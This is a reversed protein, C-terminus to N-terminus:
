GPMATILDVHGDATVQWVTLVDAKRGNAGVMPARMQIRGAENTVADGFNDALHNKLAPELSREDFGMVERFFRGKGVSEQSLVNGLLYDVKGQAANVPGPVRVKSVDLIDGDPRAIFRPRESPPLQTLEDATGGARGSGGKGLGGGARAADDAAGTVAGARSASEAAEPALGAVARTEAAAAGGGLATPPLRPGKLGKTGILMSAIDFTVQGGIEAYKGKNWADQYPATATNWLFSADEQSTRRPDLVRALEDELSKDTTAADFVGHAIKLPNWPTGATPVHEALTGLGVATDVPDVAMKVVGGVLEVAGKAIGGGAQARQEIVWNTATAAQGIVPVGALPENLRRHLEPEAREGEDIREKIWDMAGQVKNVNDRKPALYADAVVSVSDRARKARDLLSSVFSTDQGSTEQGPGTAESSAGDRAADAASPTDDSGAPGVAGVAASEVGEWPAFTSVATAVRGTASATGQMLARVGAIVGLAIFAVLVVYEAYSVGAQAAALRRAAPWHSTARPM